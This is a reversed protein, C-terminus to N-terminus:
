APEAPRPDPLDEPERLQRRRLYLATGWLGALLLADSAISAWAAGQWSYQPILALNLLVNVAVVCLQVGTRAGQFGAGTLADAAFYQTAKLLPLVSLWRVAGVAERYDEGLVYPLLPAALFIAGGAVLGYGAAYVVLKRAFRLSGALGATGHQFFRAYSAYGLSRIPTFSVQILRYAASYIGTAELTGLRALMTKDLDNHANQSSTSMSFFFGQRLDSTVDSLRFRPAGLKRSVIWVGVAASLATSALYLVAWRSPTALSPVALLPLAAALRFVSLLVQLRATWALRQFALFAFGCADLTRAFLLDSVAVLLVLVPSVSAPLVLGSILVVLAVLLLGSVLSRSLAAGWGHRFSEPDRAVNRVLLHSAGWGSFPALIAALATVGVFAGYGQAGLARAIIVFYAMQVLTRSGHGLIMWLTNRAMRDSGFRGLAARLMVRV